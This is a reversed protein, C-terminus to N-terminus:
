ENCYPACHKDKCDAYGNLDNDHGDTCLTATNEDDTVTFGGGSGGPDVGCLDAHDRSCTYDNCDVFGNCDNDIGDSCWEKWADEDDAAPPTQVGNPCCAKTTACSRDRCDVYGNCNNDLGDSCLEETNEDPSTKICRCVTVAANRSCSYDKCDTFGNGDNDLGDSCTYNTNEALVREGSDEDIETPCVSMGPGPADATGTERCAPDMCDILGNGDNDLNDMCAYVTSENGVAVYTEEVGDLECGM